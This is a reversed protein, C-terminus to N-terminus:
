YRLFDGGVDLLLYGWSEFIDKKPPFIPLYSFFSQVILVRGGFPGGAGEQPNKRKKRTM